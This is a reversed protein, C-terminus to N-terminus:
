TLYLYSNQGLNLTRFNTDKLSHDNNKKKIYQCFYHIVYINVM